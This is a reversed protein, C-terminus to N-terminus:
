PRVATAADPVPAGAQGVTAVLRPELAAPAPPVARRLRRLALAAFPDRRPDPAADPTSSLWDLIMRDANEPLAAFGGPGGPGPYITHRIAGRELRGRGQQVLRRWHRRLDAPHWPRLPRLTWTAEPVVAVLPSRWPSGAADLDHMVFSGLLGDGRYLGVPLRLGSAVLRQVFGDRLAFLSGHLGPYRLMDAKLAAASRGASPVAAAAMALPEAALRAALRRLADPAVAAYADVFVHLGAPPRLRRLYQNIANSKDAHPISWVRGQLGLAQMLAPAASDSGDTTGNLVVSVEARLGATAAALAEFCRGLSSAENRAFVAISWPALDQEATAVGGRDRQPVTDM